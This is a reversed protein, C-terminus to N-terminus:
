LAKVNKLKKRTKRVKISRNIQRCLMKPKTYSAETMKKAKGKPSSSTNPSHMFVFSHVKFNLIPTAVPSLGTMCTITFRKENVFFSTDM